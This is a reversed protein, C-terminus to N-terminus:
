PTEQPTTAAKRRRRTTPPTSLFSSVYDRQESTMGLTADALTQGSKLKGVADYFRAPTLELRAMDELKVDQRGAGLDVPAMTVPPLEDAFTITTADTGEVYRAPPIEVTEVPREPTATLAFLTGDDGDHLRHIAEALTNYAAGGRKVHAVSRVVGGYVYTPHDDADLAAKVSRVELMAVVILRDGTDFTVDPLKLAAVLEHDPRPM